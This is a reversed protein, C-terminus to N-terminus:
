LFGVFRTSRTCLSSWWWKMSFKNARAM